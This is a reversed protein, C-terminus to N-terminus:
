HKLPSSEQNNKFISLFGLIVTAVLFPCETKQRVELLTQRATGLRSSIGSADRMVVCSDQSQQVFVLKSHGDGGSSSFEGRTGVAVQLFGHTKGRATLHAKIQNNSSWLTGLFVTVSKFSVSTVAPICFVETSGLDVPSLAGNGQMPELNIGHRVDYM